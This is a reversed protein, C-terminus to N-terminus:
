NWDPVAYAALIALLEGSARMKQIEESLIRAYTAATPNKASFAIGVKHPPPVEGAIKIADAIDMQKAIYGVVAGDEILVTVRDALLKKLNQQLANNGSIFDVAPSKNKKATAIYANLEGYDYDATGALVMGEMSAPGAYKWNTDRRVFLKNVSVGLEETPLVFRKERAQSFYIGVCGDATGEEVDALARSWPVIKFEVALGARKFARVAIDVMFGKPGHPSDIVYPPWADGELTVTQAAAQRGLGFALLAGLLVLVPCNWAATIMM